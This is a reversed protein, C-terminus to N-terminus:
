HFQYHRTYIRRLVTERGGYVLNPDGYVQDAVASFLCNGDRKIPKFRFGKKEFLFDEFVQEDPLLYCEPLQVEHVEKSKKKMIPHVKKPLAINLLRAAYFRLYNGNAEDLVISLKKGKARGNSWLSM